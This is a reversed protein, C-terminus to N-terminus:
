KFFVEAKETCVTQGDPLRVCAGIAYGPGMDGYFEQAPSFVTAQGFKQGKENLVYIESGVPAVARPWTMHCKSSYRLEILINGSRNMDKTKADLHCKKYVPDQNLCSPQSLFCGQLLGLFSPIAIGILFSIIVMSVLLEILTYGNNSKNKEIM